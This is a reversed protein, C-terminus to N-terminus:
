ASACVRARACIGRCVYKTSAMLLLELACCATGATGMRRKKRKKKKAKSWPQNGIFSSIQKKFHRDGQKNGTCTKNREFLRWGPQYNEEALALTGKSVRVTTIPSCFLWGSVGRWWLLATYTVQVTHKQGMQIERNGKEKRSLPLYKVNGVAGM